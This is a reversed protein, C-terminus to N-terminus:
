GGAIGHMWQNRILPYSPNTVIHFECCWQGGIIVWAYAWIRGWWGDVRRGTTAKWLRELALAVAQASFFGVVRWEVGRGMAYMAFMHFLGSATFAGFVLGTFGATQGARKGFFVGVAREFIFSLPYGGGFLFTQRLLQHWRRGWFDHLSTTVWPEEMVPPWASPSQGWGVCILTLIGYVMNFGGIFAVGTAFHLATSVLARPLIPLSSLFISGGSPSSVGPVLKFGTDIADLLLFHVLTSRLTSRLFASRELARYEPPIYIDTGTGYDWGVGRMSSLLECADLFGNRIRTWLSSSKPFPIERTHHKAGDSPLHRLISPAIENVKLRGRPACALEVAKVLAFMGWLGSAFNYVNYVPNMWEYTYAATLTSWVAFPLIALRLLQTRPRRALFSLVLLPAIPLIVLPCNTWTLPLRDQPAPVLTQLLRALSSLM